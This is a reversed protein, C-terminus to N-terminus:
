GDGGALARIARERAWRYDPKASPQREVEDVLV